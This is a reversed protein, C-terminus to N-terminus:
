DRAASPPDNPLLNTSIYAREAMAGAARDDEATVLVLLRLHDRPELPVM